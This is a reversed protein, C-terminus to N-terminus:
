SGTGAWFLPRMTRPLAAVWKRLANLGGGREKWQGQGNLCQITNLYRLSSTTALGLWGPRGPGVRTIPVRTAHRWQRWGSRTHCPGQHCAMEQHPGQHCAIVKGSANLSRGRVMRKITASPYPRVGRGRGAVAAVRWAQSLSGLPLGNRSPSRPPLINRSPSAPPLGDAVVKGTSNRSRKRVM